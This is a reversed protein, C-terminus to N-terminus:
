GINEYFEPNEKDSVWINTLLETTINQLDSKMSTYM